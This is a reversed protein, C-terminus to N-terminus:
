SACYMKRDSKTLWKAFVIFKLLSIREESKVLPRLYPLIILVQRWSVESVRYSNTKLYHGFTVRKSHLQSTKNAEDNIGDGVIM